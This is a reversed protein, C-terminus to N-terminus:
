EGVQGDRLPRHREHEADREHRHEREPERAQRSCRGRLLDAGDIEDVHAVADRVRRELVCAGLDLLADLRAPGVIEDPEHGERLSRAHNRERLVRSREAATARLDGDRRDFAVPRAEASPGVDGAGELERIAQVAFAVQAM